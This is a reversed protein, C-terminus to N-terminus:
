GDIGVFKRGKLGVRNEKRLDQAAKILERGHKEAEIPSMRCSFMQEGGLNFVMGVLGNSQPNIIISSM